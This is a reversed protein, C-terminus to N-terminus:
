VYLNLQNVEVNQSYDAPKTLLHDGEARYAAHHSPRGLRSENM